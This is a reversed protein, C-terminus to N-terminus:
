KGQVQPPSDQGAPPTGAQSATLKGYEKLFYDLIARRSSIDEKWETLRALGSSTVAYIRRAPGPNSTDWRSEIEGDREMRLLARYVAGSDAKLGPLRTNLATQLAGGHQPAPLLELLLFAPLHRSQQRMGALILRINVAHQM